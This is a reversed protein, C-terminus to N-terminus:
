KSFTVEVRRNKGEKVNDGTAVRPSAEGHASTGVKGVVGGKKLAAAVASVRTKALAENYATAGSTDTHGKLMVTAPKYAKSAEIIKKVTAQAEANLTKGNFDFFVDFPGPVPVPAPAPAPEAKKEAVCKPMNEEFGKRAMAIHDMQWGEESQEMWHELWTQAYSCAVPQSKQAGAALAAKLKEHGAKIDAVDVKLGRDTPPQPAVAQGMAAMEARSAFFDVSRWDGEGVEFKARDIYHKHLANAFADGKSPMTAIENVNYTGCAGLLLAPAVFAAAIVAKRM